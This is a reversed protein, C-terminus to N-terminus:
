MEAEASAASQRAAEDGETLFARPYVGLLEKMPGIDVSRDESLRDVMGTTISPVGPIHRTLWAAAHLLWPPASVVKARSLLYVFDRLTWPVPGGVAMVRPLHKDSLLAAVICAAVDKYHIPQILASGRDPLPVIPLWRLMRQIVSVNRDDGGYIMTPNLWVGACNLRMWESQERRMLDGRADPIRSYARASGVIVIRVGHHVTYGFIHGNLKVSACNVIHTSYPLVSSFKHEEGRGIVTVLNTRPTGYRRPDRGHERLLRVVESGVRGYGGIVAVRM